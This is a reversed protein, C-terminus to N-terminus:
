ERKVRHMYRNKHWNWTQKWVHDELYSKFLVDFKLIIDLSNLFHSNIGCCIKWSYTSILLSFLNKRKGDSYLACVRNGFAEPLLNRGSYHLLIM